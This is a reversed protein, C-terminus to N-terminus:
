FLPFIKLCFKIGRFGIRSTLIKSTQLMLKMPGNGFENPLWNMKTATSVDGFPYFDHKGLGVVVFHNDFKELFIDEGTETGGSRYNTIISRMEAISYKFSQHLFIGDIM